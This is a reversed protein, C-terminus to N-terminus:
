GSTWTGGGGYSGVSQKNRGATVFFPSIYLNGFIVFANGLIFSGSENTYFDFHATVYNGLYSLFYLIASPLYIIQGNS